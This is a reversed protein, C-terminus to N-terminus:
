CMKKSYKNEKILYSERDVFIKKNPELDESLCVNPGVISNPGIKIGPIITSNVGTKCDDAMIVGLKERGTDVEKEDIKVKVNQGDFRLNATISGGGFSCNDSILSDGIYNRHFWCNDGIISNKIECGFGVVCKSGISSYERILISNGILSNPGIYCPGQICVNELVKTGERIWVNGSITAKSSVDTNKEIIQTTIMKDMLYRNLEFLDWSYKFSGFYGDYKVAKVTHRDDIFDQIAEEYQRDSIGVNKYYDFIEENLIYAGIVGLNSPETGMEPKEVFLTVDDDEVKIIGYKWTEKVPKCSLVMDADTTQFKKVMDEILRTEFIDDANLVFFHDDVLNKTTELANAMGLPERQEAYQINVDLKSGDDFYNKIYKGNYGVVIIFDTISAEKANEIVYQILPKGLIRFMPKPRNVALPFVRNGKGGALIM